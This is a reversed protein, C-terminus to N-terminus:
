GHLLWDLGFAIWCLVMAVLYWKAILWWRSKQRADLPQDWHDPTPQRWGRNSGRTPMFM